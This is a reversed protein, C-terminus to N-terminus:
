RGPYDKESTAESIVASVSLCHKHRYFFQKSGDRRSPTESDESKVLQIKNGEQLTANSEGPGQRAEVDKATDRLM